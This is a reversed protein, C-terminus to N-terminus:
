TLKFLAQHVSDDDLSVTLVYCGAKSPTQWDYVFQGSDNRLSTGGTATTELADATPSLTTCPISAFTIGRVVATSTILAGAANKLQWKVPYTRGAKGTNTVVNDVPPLFGIFTYALQVQDVADASNGAADTATCKVTHLGLGSVAITASYPAGPAPNTVAPISAPDGDVTCAVTALGAGASASVNETV